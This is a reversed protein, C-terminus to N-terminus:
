VDSKPELKFSFYKNQRKLGGTLLFRVGEVLDLSLRMSLSLVAM